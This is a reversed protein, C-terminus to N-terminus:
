LPRVYSSGRGVYTGDGSCGLRAVLTDRKDNLYKHMLRINALDSRTVTQTTQGTNLTYSEIMGPGDFAIMAANYARIAAEIAQLEEKLFPDTM